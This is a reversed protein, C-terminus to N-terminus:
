PLKVLEYLGHGTDRLRGQRCLENWVEQPFQNPPKIAFVGTPGTSLASRGLRSDDDLATLKLRKKFAKIASRLTEPPIGGAQEQPQHETM